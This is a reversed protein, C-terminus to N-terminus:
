RNIYENELAFNQEFPLLFYNRLDSSNFFHLFFCANSGLIIAKYRFKLIITTKNFTYSSNDGISVFPNVCGICCVILMFDSDM